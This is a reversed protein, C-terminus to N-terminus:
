WRFFSWPLKWCAQALVSRCTSSRSSVGRRSDTGLHHHDVVWGDLWRGPKVHLGVELELSRALSFEKEGGDSACQIRSILAQRRDSYVTEDRAEDKKLANLQDRAWLM